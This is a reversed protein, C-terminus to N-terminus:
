GPTHICSSPGFVRFPQVREVRGTRKGEDETHNKVRHPEVSRIGHALGNKVHSGVVKEPPKEECGMAEAHLKKEDNRSKESPHQNFSPTGPPENGVSPFANPERKEDTPDNYIGQEKGNPDPAKLFTTLQLERRRKVDYRKIEKKPAGNELVPRIPAGEIQGM